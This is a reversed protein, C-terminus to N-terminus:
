QAKTISITARWNYTVASGSNVIIRADNVTPSFSVTGGFGGSADNKITTTTGQQTCAGGATRYFSGSITTMRREAGTSLIGVIEATITYASNDPMTLQWLPVNANVTTQRGVKIPTIPFVNNGQGFWATQLSTFEGGSADSTMEPADSRFGFSTYGQIDPTCELKVGLAGAEKYAGYLMKGADDFCILRGISLGACTNMGLAWHGGGGSSVHKATLLIENRDSTSAAILVAKEVCGDVDIDWRCGKPGVGSGQAVHLARQLIDTATIVAKSNRVDGDDTLARSCHRANGSVHIREMYGTGSVGREIAQGNPCNSIDFNHASSDVLQENLVGSYFKIGDLGCDRAKFDPLHTKSTSIYAAHQGIIDHARASQILISGASAGAGINDATNIGQATNFYVPCIINIDECAGYVTDHIILFPFQYNEGQHLLTGLAHTGEAEPCLLTIGRGGLIVYQALGFNRVRPAIAGSNICGYFAIGRANHGSIGTWSSSYTGDGRIEGGNLRLWVNSKLVAKIGHKNPDLQRILTGPKIVIETNDVPLIEQETEYDGDDFQISNLGSDLADQIGASNVASSAAPTVGFRKVNGYPYRESVVGTEGGLTPYLFASEIEDRHLQRTSSFAPASDAYAALLYARTRETM